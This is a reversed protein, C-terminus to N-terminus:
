SWEFLWCCSAPWPMKAQVAFVVVAHVKWFGFASLVYRGISMRCYENGHAQMATNASLAGESEAAPLSSAEAQM